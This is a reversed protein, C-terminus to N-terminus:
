LYKIEQFRNGSGIKYQMLGGNSLELDKAIKKVVEFPQQGNDYATEIESQYRNLLDNMESQFINYKKLGDIVYYTYEEISSYREFISWKKIYKM